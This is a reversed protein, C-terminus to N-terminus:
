PPSVTLFVLMEERRQRYSLIRTSRRLSLLIYYLQQDAQQRFGAVFVRRIRTNRNRTRM